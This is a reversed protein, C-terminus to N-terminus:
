IKQSCQHYWTLRSTTHMLNRWNSHEFNVAPSVFMQELGASLDCPLSDDNHSGTQRAILRPAAPM